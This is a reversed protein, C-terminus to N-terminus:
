ITRDAVPPSSAGGLFESKDLCADCCFERKQPDAAIVYAWQKEQREPLPGRCLWCVRAKTM